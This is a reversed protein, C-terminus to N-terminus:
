FRDEPGAFESVIKRLAGYGGFFRNIKVLDRLNERAEEPAAHDLREPVIIRHQAVVCGYYSAALRRRVASGRNM